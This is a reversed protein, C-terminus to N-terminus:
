TGTLWPLLATMVVVIILAGLAGILGGTRIFDRATLEGTGHALANPPTSVPLAMSMSAVLAVTLAFSTVNSSGAAGAAIVAVPMLMSAIATNSFFTGLALTGAALAMLRMTTSAGMPVLAAVRQDLGTAQLGFGLALGGAILILVDWELTNVDRRTIIDTVLFLTIPLVSAAPAPVGHWPETLWVGFTLLAVFVVWRGRRTLSADPFELTWTLGAAPYQRRLWWWTAALLVIVLPCALVMWRVFSVEIDARGLYSIALANPPSAIPTSMGAINASVPVSLILAKRFPHGDPVQRLIPVILALMLATTATNSMGVSFCSTVLMIALLLRGPTDAMPRLVRAALWRDVGTKTVARSLMLGSLFLVLVPDAAAALYAHLAMADGPDGLWSWGGPNGLLLVQLAISIFATAFLPLTETIWLLVTAVLIGTMLVQERPWGALSAFSALGFAAVLLLVAALPRRIGAPLGPSIRFLRSSDVALCQVPSPSREPGLRLHSSARQSARSRRRASTQASGDLM